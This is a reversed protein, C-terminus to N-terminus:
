TLKDHPFFFLRSTIAGVSLIPSFIQVLGLTKGLYITNFNQVMLCPVDQLITYVLGMIYEHFDQNEKELGYCDM